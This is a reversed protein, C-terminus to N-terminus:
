QPLLYEHHVHVLIHKLESFVDLVKHLAKKSGILRRWPLARQTLQQEHGKKKEKKREGTIRYNSFIQLHPLFLTFIWILIQDVAEM